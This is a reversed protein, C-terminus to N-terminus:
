SAVHNKLAQIFGLHLGEHFNNLAIAEEITPLYIGISTMYPQFGVFKNNEYDVALQQALPDLLPLFETPDPETEWGAPSSGTIYMDVQEPSVAMELDSLQYHLTQQIVVIHGLNWAINNDFGPPIHLMKASSLDAVAQYLLKRTKILMQISHM